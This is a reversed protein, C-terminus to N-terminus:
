KEGMILKKKLRCIEHVVFSVFFVFTKKIFNPEDVKPLTSNQSIIFNQCV